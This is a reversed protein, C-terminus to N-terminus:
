GPPSVDATGGFPRELPTDLVHSPSRGPVIGERYPSVGDLGSRKKSLRVRLGPSSPTEGQWPSLWRYHRRNSSQGKRHRKPRSDNLRKILSLLLACGSGRNLLPGNTNFGSLGCLGAYGVTTSGKNGFLKWGSRGGCSDIESSRNFNQEAV